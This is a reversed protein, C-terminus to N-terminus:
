SRRAGPTKQSPVSRIDGETNSAWPTQDTSGYGEKKQKKAEKNRQLRKDRKGPWNEVIVKSLLACAAASPHPHGEITLTRGGGRRGIRTMEKEGLYVGERTVEGGVSQGHTKRGKHGGTGGVGIVSCGGRRSERTSDEGCGLGGRGKAM